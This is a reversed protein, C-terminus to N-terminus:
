GRKGKYEVNYEVAGFFFRNLGRRETTKQEVFQKVDASFINGYSHLKMHM